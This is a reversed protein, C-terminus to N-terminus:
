KLCELFIFNGMQFKKLFQSWIRLFSHNQNCKSFFMKIPFKMKKQLSVCNVVTQLVKLTTGKESRRFISRKLNSSREVSDETLFYFFDLSIILTFVTITYSNLFHAFKLGLLEMSNKLTVHWSIHLINFSLIFLNCELFESMKKSLKKLVNLYISFRKDYLESLMFRIKSM